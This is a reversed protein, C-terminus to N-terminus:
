LYALSILSMRRRRAGQMHKTWDSAAKMPRSSLSYAFEALQNSVLWFGFGECLRAAGIQHISLIVRIRHLCRDGGTINRPRVFISTLDALPDGAPVSRRLIFPHGM